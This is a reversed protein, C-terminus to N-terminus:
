MRRSGSGICRRLASTGTTPSKAPGFASRAIPRKAAWRPALTEAEPDTGDRVVAIRRTRLTDQALPTIHGGAVLMVTSGYELVRADAETIMQFRKM